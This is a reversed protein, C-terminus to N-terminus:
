APVHHRGAHRGWVEVELVLEHGTVAAVETRIFDILKQIDRATAGGRNVIFNGHVNSVMAGGVSVGKLGCADVLKGASVGPAPNKFVCGASPESLPQTAAKERHIQEIRARYERPDVEPLRFAVEVVLVRGLASSRYGFACEDASLTHIEGAGDM